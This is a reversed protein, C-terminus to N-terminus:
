IPERTALAKEWEALQSEQTLLRSTLDPFTFTKNENIATKWVAM